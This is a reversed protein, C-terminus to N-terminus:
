AALAFSLLVNAGALIACLIFAAAIPKRRGGEAKVDRLCLLAALMMAGYFPLLTREGSEVVTPSFGMVLRTAFGLAFIFVAVAALPRHGISLYPTLAMMGLAVITAALMVWRIPHDVGDPGYLLSYSQMGAFPENQNAAFALLVFAATLGAMLMEVWGRRRAIMTALVMAGCAALVPNWTYILLASASTLGIDLKDILTFQGYDRLNVATISEAARVANGPAFLHMALEVCAVALVLWVTASPKNEAKEKRNRIVLAAGLVVHAGFILAAMQEQNASIVAGLVAFVALARPTKRGWLADALPICATLACALPVYYNMGTAQWGTSRLVAFPITTVMLGAFALMEPRKEAHALRCLAFAMLVMNLSDLVRWLWISRTTVCLFAEIILRSSWTQWRMNLFAFLGQGSKSASYFYWDDFILSDCNLHMALQVLLLALLVAACRVRGDKLKNM